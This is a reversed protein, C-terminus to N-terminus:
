FTIAFIINRNRGTNCLPVMHMVMFVRNLLVFRNQCSCRGVQIKGSIAAVRVVPQVMTPGSKLVGSAVSISSHDASSIGTMM